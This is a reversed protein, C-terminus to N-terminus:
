KKGTAPPAPTAAPASQAGKPLIIFETRGSGAKGGPPTDTVYTETIGDYEIYHANAENGSSMRVWARQFLKAKESRAEYEIREAEATMTDDKGELKQQMRALKGGTSTAIGKQFGEADQTVVIKDALIVLTGQTLKVQGEFTQVKRRDDVSARDAIISVPKERDAKEALAGNSLTLASLGILTSLLKQSLTYLTGNHISM